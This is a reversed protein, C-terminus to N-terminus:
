RSFSIGRSDKTERKSSYTLSLVPLHIPDIIRSPYNCTFLFSVNNGFKEIFGRLPPQVSDPNMYDTDDMIISGRNGTMSLLVSISETHNKSDIAGRMLVMSWLITQRPKTVCHSKKLQRQRLDVQSFSIRVKGQEVFESFPESLDSPLVCDSIKHHSIEGGM